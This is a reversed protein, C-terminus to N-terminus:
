RFSVARGKMAGWLAEWAPRFPIDRGRADLFGRNAHPQVQALLTRAVPVDIDVATDAKLSQLGATIAGLLTPLLPQQAELRIMRSLDLSELRVQVTQEGCVVRLTVKRRRAAMHHPVVHDGIKVPYTRLDVPTSLPPEAFHTWGQYVDTVPRNLSRAYERTHHTGGARKGSWMAILHTAHDVMVHDREFLMQVAAKRDAGPNEGLVVVHDSTAVLAHYQRQAWDPWRQWQGDFPVATIVTIDWGAQKLGNAAQHMAQDVGAAGGVILAVPRQPLIQALQGTLYARLAEANYNPLDKPRHGTVAYIESFPALVRTLDAEAVVLHQWEGSAEPAPGAEAPVYGLAMLDSRVKRLLRGLHDEGQGNCVGWYTDGWPNIETILEPATDVLRQALVPERFKWAVVYGMVHLRRQAWDDHCRVQRGAAKASAASGTLFQARDKPDACKCAQYAHEASPFVLVQGDGFDVSVSAPYMNSLFALPGQFQKM